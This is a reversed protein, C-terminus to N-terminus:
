NDWLSQWWVTPKFAHDNAQSIQGHDRMSQRIDNIHWGTLRALKQAQHEFTAPM